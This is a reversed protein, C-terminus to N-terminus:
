RSRAWRIADDVDAETVDAEDFRARVRTSLAILEEKTDTAEDAPLSEGGGLAAALAVLAMAKSRGSGAAGTEEDVATFVGDDETIEVTAGM